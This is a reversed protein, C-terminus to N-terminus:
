YISPWLGERHLRTSIGQTHLGFKQSLHECTKERLDNWNQWGHPGYIADLGQALKEFLSSLVEIPVLLRGAFENAEQEIERKDGSHHNLGEKLSESDSVGSNQYREQHLVYHGLEHALSFRLRNLQSRSAIDLRDYIARDLYFGSFDGILAADASFDRSLDDLPEINLGLELEVFTLLDLPVKEANLHPQYQARYEEVRQWIEPNTM